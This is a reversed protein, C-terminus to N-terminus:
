KLAKIGFFVNLQEETKLLTIAFIYIIVQESATANVPNSAYTSLNISGEETEFSRTMSLKFPTSLSTFELLFLSNNKYKDLFDILRQKQDTSLEISEVGENITAEGLDIAPPDYYRADNCM